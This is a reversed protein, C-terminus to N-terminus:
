GDAEDFDRQGAVPLPPQIARIGYIGRMGAVPSMYVSNAPVHFFVGLQGMGPAVRMGVVPGDVRGDVM